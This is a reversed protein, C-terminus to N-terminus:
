QEVEITVNLKGNADTKPVIECKKIRPNSPTVNFPYAGGWVGVVTGDNGKYIQAAEDSLQWIGTGDVGIEGLNKLTYGSFDGYEDENATLASSDKFFNDRDSVMRNTSSAVNAFFNENAKSTSFGVCYDAKMKSDLIFSGNGIMLCNTFTAYSLVIGAAWFRPTVDELVCNNMTLPADGDYNYLGKIRCNQCLGGYVELNEISCNNFVPYFPYGDKFNQIAATSSFRVKSFTVTKNFKETARVTVGANCCLGELAITANNNKLLIEFGGDLTTMDNSTAKEPWMGVGRITVSKNITTVAFKGASLTIIDGEKANTHANVLAERGYYATLTGGHSLTAVLTSPEDAKAGMVTLMSAVFLLFLKKMTKFHKKRGGV